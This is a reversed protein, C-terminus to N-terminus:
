INRALISVGRQFLNKCVSDNALELYYRNNKGPMCPHKFNEMIVQEHVDWFSDKELLNNQGSHM